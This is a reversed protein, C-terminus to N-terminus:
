TVFNCLPKLSFLMLEPQFLFSKLPPLHVSFDQLVQYVHIVSLLTFLTVGPNGFHFFLCILYRQNYLSIHCHFFDQPPFNQSIAHM